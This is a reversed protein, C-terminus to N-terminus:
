RVISDTIFRIYQNRRILDQMIRNLAQAIPASDQGVLTESPEGPVDAYNLPSKFPKVKEELQVLLDFQTQLLQDINLALPEMTSQVTPRNAASLGGVTKAQESQYASPGM